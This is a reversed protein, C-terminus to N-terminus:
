GPCNRSRSGIRATWIFGGASYCGASTKSLRRMQGGKGLVNPKRIATYTGTRDIGGSLM